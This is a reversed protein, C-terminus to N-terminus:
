QGLMGRTVLRHPALHQVVVEVVFVMVQKSSNYTAGKGLQGIPEHQDGQQGNKTGEVTQLAGVFLRKPVLDQPVVVLWM